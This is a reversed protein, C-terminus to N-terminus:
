YGHSNGSLICGDPIKNGTLGCWIFLSDDPFTNIGKLIINKRFM